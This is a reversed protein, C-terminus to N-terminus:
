RNEHLNIKNKQKKVPQTAPILNYFCNYQEGMIKVLKLASEKDKMLAMCFGGGGAGVLKAGLAGSARAMTTAKGNEPHSVGIRSLLEQNEDMLMGIIKANGQKLGTIAEDVVNEAKRLIEAFEHENKEKFNKVIQVMRLTDKKIGTDILVLHLPNKIVPREIIPGLLSKQFIIAGGYTSLTNDIGSPTGHFIKEAEFAIGNIKDIGLELKFESVCARIIAVMLSASSGLGSGVPIESEIISTKFNGAGLSNKIVQIAQKTKDDAGFNIKMAPSKLIEATIKKAIGFGIIKTGYVSFHEGLFITKGHAIGIAM